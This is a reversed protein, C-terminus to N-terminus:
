KVGGSNEDLMSKVIAFFVDREYLMGVVKGSKDLVPLRQVKNRIMHDVCEMLPDDEMITIVNKTMVTEVQKDAVQKALSEVMGDWTFDGLNMMSMYSPYVARLIDGMSVMGILKGKEDLVPLGKVGVKEEGRKAVRLFNVAEKLTNDTKLYDQLPIMLDKAKM